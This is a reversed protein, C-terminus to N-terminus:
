NAAPLKWINFNDLQVTAIGSSDGSARGFYVAVDQGPGATLQRQDMLQNNVYFRVQQGAREVRLRQLPAAAPSAPPNCSWVKDSSLGGTQDSFGCSGGPGIYSAYFADKPHAQADKLAVGYAIGCFTGDGVPSCDLEAVFDAASQGSPWLHDAAFALTIEPVGDRMYLSLGGLNAKLFPSDAAFTEQFIPQASALRTALAQADATATAGSAAQATAQAADTAAFAAQSEPRNAWNILLAGAVCCILLLLGAGGALWLLTKKRM